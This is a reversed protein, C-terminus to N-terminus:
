IVALVHVLRTAVVRVLGSRPDSIFYNRAQLRFPWQSKGPLGFASELAVLPVAHRSGRADATLTFGENASGFRDGILVYQRDEPRLPDSPAVTGSDALERGTLGEDGRWILVERLPGFLRMQQLNEEGLTPSVDPFAASSLRWRTGERKGWVVGDDCHALLWILDDNGEAVPGAATVFGLWRSCAAADQPRVVCGTFETM